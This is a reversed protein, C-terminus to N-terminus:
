LIQLSRSMLKLLAKSKLQLLMLSSLCHDERRSPIQMNTSKKKQRSFLMRRKKLRRKRLRTQFM